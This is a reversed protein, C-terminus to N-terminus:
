RLMMIKTETPLALPIKSLSAICQKHLLVPATSSTVLTKLYVRILTSSPWFLFCGMNSAVCILKGRDWVIGRIAEAINHQDIEHSQRTTSSMRWSRTGGPERRKTGDVRWGGMYYYSVWPCVHGMRRCGM